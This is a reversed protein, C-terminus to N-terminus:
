GRFAEVPDISSAHLAPSLGFITGLLASVTLGTAIRSLTLRLVLASSGSFLNVATLGLWALGIGAAGGLLSLVAAEGLFQIVIVKKRAGLARRIGIERKREEVSVYMINAIGFGGVLLSFLGVIWGLKELLFFIENMENIIFSLRNIAFNDKAGPSLRRSQRMLMRVEEEEVGSVIITNMPAGNGGLTPMARYPVLCVNDIDITNVSTTGSREFVGIILYSTGGVRIKQGIIREAGSGDAGFVAADASSSGAGARGAGGAGAGGDGAGGGGAAAGVNLRKEKLFAECRDAGLIAVASGRAIESETFSRGAVVACNAALTWDGDVGTVGEGRSCFAICYGGAARHTDDKDAACCPDEGGAAGKRRRLQESLFSYERFSVQPRSVYEWWRFVGDENLDPELPIQEVFLSGTGFQEFGEKLAAELSDVLVLVAVISFVGVAVGLLSLLTRFPDTRFEELVKVMFEKM